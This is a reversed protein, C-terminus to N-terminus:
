QLREYSHSILIIQYFSLKDTNQNSAAGFYEKISIKSVKEIEVVDSIDEKDVIKTARSKIDLNSAEEVNTRIEMEDKNDINIAEDTGIIDENEVIIKNVEDINVVKIKNHINDVKKSDISIMKVKKVKNTEKLTIKMKGETTIKFYEEM